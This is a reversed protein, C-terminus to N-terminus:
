SWWCMAIVVWFPCSALAGFRPGEYTGRYTAFLAGSADCAEM